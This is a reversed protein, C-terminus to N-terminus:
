RTFLIKKMMACTKNRPSIEDRNCTFVRLSVETLRLSVLEGVTDTKLPKIYRMITYIINRPVVLLVFGHPPFLHVVLIHFHVLEKLIKMNLLQQHPAAGHVLM